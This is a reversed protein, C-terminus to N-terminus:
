KHADGGGAGEVAAKRKGGGRAAIIWGCFINALLSLGLVISLALPPRSSPGTGAAGAAGAAEADAGGEVNVSITITGKHGMGDEATLRWEGPEFPIFSFYGARDAVSEQVPADP